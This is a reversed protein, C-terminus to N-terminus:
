YVSGLLTSVDAFDHARGVYGLMRGDEKLPIHVELVAGFREFVKRVDEKSSQFSLNRVILKSKKLTKKSVKKSERSLLFVDMVPELSRKYKAGNLGKVALRAAKHSSFSVHAMQSAMKTESSNVPFVIEEISGFKECKKRLRKEKASVPLNGMVVVKGVDFKASGRESKAKRQKMAVGKRATLSEYDEEEKEQGGEKVGGVAEQSKRLNKRDAFTLQM